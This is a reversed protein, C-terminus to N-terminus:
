PQTAISLVRLWVSVARGRCVAVQQESRVVTDDTAHCFSAMTPARQHSFYAAVALGRGQGKSALRITRCLGFSIMGASTKEFVNNPAGHYHANDIVLHFPSQDWKLSEPLIGGNMATADRCCLAFCEMGEWEVRRSNELSGAVEASM